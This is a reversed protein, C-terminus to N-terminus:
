DDGFLLGAKKSLMEQKLSDVYGNKARRLLVQMNTLEKIRSTTFELSRLTKKAQESLNDLEYEDEGLKIKKGM